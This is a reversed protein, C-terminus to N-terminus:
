SRRREVEVGVHRERAPRDVDRQQEDRKGEDDPRHLRHQDLEVLLELVGRPREPRALKVVKRRTTRGLM